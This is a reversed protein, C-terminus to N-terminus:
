GCHNDTGIRDYHEMYGLNITAATPQKTADSAHQSSLSSSKTKEDHNAMSKFSSQYFEAVILTPMSDNNIATGIM